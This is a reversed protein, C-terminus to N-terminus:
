HSPHEADSGLTPPESSEIDIQCGGAVAVLGGIIALYPAVLAGVVGATVPFEALTRENQRVKIRTVNGRHIAEKLRDLWDASRTFIVHSKNNSQRELHIIAELENWDTAELASRAEEYGVHMRERVLDIAALRETM